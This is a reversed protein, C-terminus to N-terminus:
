VGPEVHEPIVTAESADFTLTLRDGERLHGSTQPDSNAVLSGAADARCHIRMSEGLYVADEVVADISVPTTAADGNTGGLTIRAPRVMLFWRGNDSRAQTPWLWPRWGDDLELDLKWRAPTRAADISIPLLNCDGFFRAVFADRPTEFLEAPVGEQLLEGARLVGIRDSLALAEEQDHTVYLVTVGTERHIRRLEQEMELRLARDLAGLPEDMLLVRPGFVLARALAVRQQQGGSLQRPMRAGLGELQVLALAKEVRERSERRSLRRMRLPYGVNHAVDMHPFLAYHQLVVGLDREGPPLSSVERGDIVIHGASPAEFGAIMRLVTTKGSGSPGLLTYFEGPEITLDLDRVATVPGFDKRLGVMELRHSGAARNVAGV